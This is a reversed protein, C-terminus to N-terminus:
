VVAVKVLLKFDTWHARQLPQCYFTQFPQPAVALCMEGLYTSPAGVMIDDVGDDNIDGAFSVALGSNQNAEVGLIRFGVNTALAGNPLQIDAFPGVVKRGFIVYTIGADSGAPPNAYVAAVILDSIGDGNIDGSARGARRCLHDSAVAGMIRFGKANASIASLLDVHGFAASSGTMNKGFIVYAIGANNDTGLGPADATQAGVIVDDIGDGNVDGAASVFEGVHDFTASGILMFGVNDALSSLSIDTFANNAAVTVKRGFIVYCIGAGPRSAGAGWAGTIIDDIGDGNVDGATSVSYGNQDGGTSGFIRFGTTPGTLFSTLPFISIATNKLGFIVYTIGANSNAWPVGILLDCVGDGNIDGANSVSKGGSTITFGQSSSLLAVNYDGIIVAKTIAIVMILIFLLLSM